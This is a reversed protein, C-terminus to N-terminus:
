AAHAGVWREFAPKPPLGTQRAVEYGDRFMVFLPIGQVRHHQAAAQNEDTNLKLVLLKGANDRAIGDLIPAAMRCPACWPAWFDVLVPVPSSALADALGAQSVEQPAGSTDIRNKCRGCIPTRGAADRVRNFAGCERCRYVDV